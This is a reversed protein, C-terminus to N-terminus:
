SIQVEAANLLDIVADRAENQLSTMHDSLCDEAADEEINDRM